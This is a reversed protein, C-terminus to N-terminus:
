NKSSIRINYEYMDARYLAREYYLPEGSVSYYLSDIKLVPTNRSIRLYEQQKASPHLASVRSDASGINRGFTENILKYLSEKLDVLKLGPAINLPLFVEEIAVPIDDALRLRLARYVKGQVMLKGAIDEPPPTVSFEIIKTSPEFGMARVTESFSAINSQKMKRASVFTGRGQERYLAGASVLESLAARVTMRSLGFREALTRESPLADGPVLEGSQIKKQISEKVLIYTPKSM